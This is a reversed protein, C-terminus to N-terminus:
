LLIVAARKDARPPPTRPWQQCALAPMVFEGRTAIRHGKQPRHLPERVRRLQQRFLDPVLRVNRPRQQLIACLGAARRRQHPRTPLGRNRPLSRPNLKSKCPKDLTRVRWTTMRLTRSNKEAHDIRWKAMRLRLSRRGM